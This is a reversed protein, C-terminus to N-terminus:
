EHASEYEADILRTLSEISDLTSRLELALRLVSDYSRPSVKRESDLHDELTSIQTLTTAYLKEAEVKKMPADASLDGYRTNSKDELYMLDSFDEMM